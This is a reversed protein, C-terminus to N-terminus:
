LLSSYLQSYCLGTNSWSLRHDKMFNRANKGLRIRLEADKSLTELHRALEEIDGDPFLLGNENHRVLENTGEIDSAVVPLGSAMAELIVNPRGESHSALVFIDADALVAPIDSPKLQGTFVVKDQLTLDAVLQQLSSAEPGTGVISLHLQESNAARALAKIVHDMGKRPILSGITLLRIEQRASQRENRRINLFLDEIGNEILIVKNQQAPMNGGIWRKMAESVVVLRTSLVACLKLLLRDIVHAQARTVDEGRLTTIVPVRLIKGVLGAICGNMAWNAHVIDAHRAYRLCSIFASFLLSPILFYLWKNNKLAVPIGGPGHALVEVRRPAYRFTRVKMRNAIATDVPTPTSPTIVTTEVDASLHQVLRHIFIGSVSQSALPFSTTLM